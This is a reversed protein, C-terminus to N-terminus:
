AKFYRYLIPVGKLSLNRSYLYMSGKPLWHNQPERPEKAGSEIPIIMMGPEKAGGVDIDKVRLGPKKHTTTLTITGKPTGLITRCSINLTGWFPGYNQCSGM